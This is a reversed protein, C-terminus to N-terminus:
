WSIDQHNHFASVVADRSPFVREPPKRSMAPAISSICRSGIKLISAAAKRIIEALIRDPWERYAPFVPQETIRHISGVGTGNDIGHYLQCLRMVQINVSM